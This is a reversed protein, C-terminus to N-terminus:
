VLTSNYMYTGLLGDLVMNEHVKSHEWVVQCFALSGLDCIMLYYCSVFLNYVFCFGCCTAKNSAQVVRVAM